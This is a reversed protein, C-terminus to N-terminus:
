SITRSVSLPSSAKIARTGARYCYANFVVTIVSPIQLCVVNVIFANESSAFYCYDRDDKLPSYKVETLSLEGGISNLVILPLSLAFSVIPVIWLSLPKYTQSNISMLSTDKFRQAILSTWGFSLLYTFYPFAFYYDCIKEDNAASGDDNTYDLIVWLLLGISSLGDTGVLLIQLTLMRSPVEKRYGIVYFWCAALSVLASISSTCIIVLYSLQYYLESRTM